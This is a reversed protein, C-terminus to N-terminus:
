HNIHTSEDKMCEFISESFIIKDGAELNPTGRMSPPVTLNGFSIPNDRAMSRMRVPRISSGFTDIIIM